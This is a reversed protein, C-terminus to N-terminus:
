CSSWQAVSSVRPSMQPMPDNTTASISHHVIQHDLRADEDLFSCSASNCLCGPQVCFCCEYEEVFNCECENAASMLVGDAGEAVACVFQRGTTALLEDREGEMEQAGGGAVRMARRRRHGPVPLRHRRRHRLVVSRYAHNEGHRSFGSLFGAKAADLSARNHM